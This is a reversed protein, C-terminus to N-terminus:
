IDGERWALVMSPLSSITFMVSIMLFSGDAVQENAVEPRFLRLEPGYALLLFVVMVLFSCWLYAIRFSANRIKLQREDLLEDPADAIGRVSIRLLLYGGIVSAVVFVTSIVLITFDLNSSLNLSKKIASYYSGLATLVLGIAMLTVLIRRNRQPRLWRYSKSDNSLLSKVGKDTVGELWYIKNNKPM